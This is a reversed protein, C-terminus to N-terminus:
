KSKVAEAKKIAFREQTSLGKGGAKRYYEAAKAKDGMRESARGAWYYATGVWMGSSPYQEPIKLFEAVADKDNGLLFSCFGIWYQTSPRESYKQNQLASRYAELASQYNHLRFYCDGIRAHIDGTGAKGSPAALLRQYAALADSFKGEAYMRDANGYEHPAPQVANANACGLVAFLIFFTKLLRSNM